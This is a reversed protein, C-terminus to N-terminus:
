ENEEGKTIVEEAPFAADVGAGGKACQDRGEVVSTVRGTEGEAYEVAEHLGEWQCAISKGPDGEEEESAREPHDQPFIPILFSPPPKAAFIYTAIGSPKRHYTEGTDDAKGELPLHGSPASLACATHFVSSSLPSTRRM